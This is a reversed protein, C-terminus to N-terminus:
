GTLSPFNEEIWQRMINSVLISGKKSLHTVDIFHDNSIKLGWLNLVPMDAMFPKLERIFENLPEQPYNRTGVESFPFIVGLPQVNHEKLLSILMGLYKRNRELTKPYDKEGLKRMEENATLYGKLTIASKEYFQRDFYLDNINLPQGSAKWSDYENQICIHLKKSFLAKLYKGRAWRMSEMKDIELWSLYFLEWCSVSAYRVELQFVYPALGIFCLRPLTEKDAHELYHKVSQLSYYIDQSPLAFTAGIGLSTKSLFELDIGHYSYSSGTVLFNPHFKGEALLRMQIYPYFLMRWEFIATCDVIKESSVGIKRLLTYTDWNYPEGVAVIYCVADFVNGHTALEDLPHFVTEFTRQLSESLNNWVGFFACCAIKETDMRQLVMSLAPELGIIVTKIFGPYSNGGGASFESKNSKNCM